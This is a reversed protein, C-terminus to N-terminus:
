EYALHNPSSARPPPSAIYKKDNAVFPTTELGCPLLNNLSVIPILRHVRKWYITSPRKTSSTGGGADREQEWMSGWLWTLNSRQM